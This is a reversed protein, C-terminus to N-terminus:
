KVTNYLYQYLEEDTFYYLGAYEMIEETTMDPDVDTYNFLKLYADAAADFDEVGMPYLQLVSLASLAYSIYYGPSTITVYRWYKANIMTHANFDKLISYFLADYEDATIQGDAMIVASDAGNYTDTYVAREFADVATSVVITFLLDLKTNVETYEFGDESMQGSLYALYLMENGQSHMELLDYSQDYESKNYIENMYHGFEHAVTFSNQYGEGFYAIPIELPYIYTVFAGEYTGRFMNGDAMLNNFEDSFSYITEGNEDTFEFLDIYDNLLTNGKTDKFFSNESVSTYEKNSAGLQQYEYYAGGALSSIYQKIYGYIGEIEEYSYDRDYVSTYAYDLYNEYHFYEAIAKNNEVFQAYLDPVANSSAPDAISYYSSEIDQKTNVLAIYEEDSYEASDELYNKIEEETMGQYFFERYMSDYIPQSLAYFKAVVETYFNMMNDYALKAATDKDNCFYAVRSLQTQAMAYLLGDYIATHKEDFAAFAEALEGEEAFAHLAPDYVDLTGLEANFADFLALLEAKDEETYQFVLVEAYKGNGEAFYGGSCGDVTCLVMRSAEVFEGYSHGTPAINEIKKASCRSCKYGTYGATTCGPETKSSVQMDHGLAETEESYSDGCSCAYYSTGAKLCTADTKILEYAHTHPAEAEKGLINNITAQVDCSALALTMALMLLLVLIKKM